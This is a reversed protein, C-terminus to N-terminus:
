RLSLVYDAVQAATAPDTQGPYGMKTGPVATQPSTIFAILSARDWTVAYSLMAGSYPYGPVTGAKRGNVKWLPPGVLAVGDRSADHCMLCTAFESPPPSSPDPFVLGPSCTMASLLLVVWIKM